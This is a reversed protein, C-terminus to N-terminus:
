QRIGTFDHGQSCLLANMTIRAATYNCAAIQQGLTQLQERIVHCSVLPLISEVDEPPIFEHTELATRLTLLHKQIDLWQCSHCDMIETVAIPEECETAPKSEPEINAISQLTIDLAQTFTSLMAASPIGKDRLIVELTHATQQIWTAGVNAAAGKIQHLFASAQEYQQNALLQALQDASNGFDNGFQHLLRILKTRDGGLLNTINQLELGQLAQKPVIHQVLVQFLHQPTIPKVLYGNMGAQRCSQQDRLLAAATMAIIPLQNWRAQTRIRRTAELGDMVPMQLDMLVVHFSDPMKELISLAEQGNWATTVCCGQRELFEIVVQQNIANDEVLLIHAGQIPNHPPVKSCPTSSNKGDRAHSLSHSPTSLIPWEGKQFRMVVSLLASPMVPRALIADVGINRLSHTLSEQSSAATMVVMPQHPLHRAHMVKQIGRVIEAADIEQLNWDLFVLDFIDGQATVKKVIALAELATTAEQVRFNWARLMEAVIGRAVSWDDIVLAHMRPQIAMPSPLLCIDQPIALLVELRFISGAHFHSEVTICGGMMGALHQSITLGLGTGGYRRTISNDAQMYPQFLREKQEATLGIGTDRVSFHLMVQQGNPSPQGEVVLVIQGQHTFKIPNSVLNNLIQRLRLPDGVLITPVQPAIRVALELGKEEIRATFLDVIQELLDELYFTISELELRGAEVKSYDLVDNVIDLLTAASQNIKQFYDRAKPPLQANIEMGLQSLGLIANMPTRIEHSMNALFLSKSANAEEAIRKAEELAHHSALSKAMALMETIDRIFAVFIGGRTELYRVSFEVDVASGNSHRHRNRHRVEVGPKKMISAMIRQVEEPSKDSQIDFISMTLMEARSYGLMTTLATNVDLFRGDVASVILFGDLSTDIISKYETETHLTGTVDRSIGFVGQVQGQADRVPWKSTSVYCLRGHSDYYPDIKGVISQGYRFIPEEEAEYVQATDPPFVERDHKGVMDRWHAHGTITALTQSCFRFRSNHDKFYVFDTTQNLFTEFDQLFTATEDTKPHPEPM